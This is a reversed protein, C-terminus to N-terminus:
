LFHNKEFEKGHSYQNAYEVYRKVSLHSLFGTRKIVEETSMNRELCRLIYTNRLHQASIGKRLQARAVLRIMKKVAIATLAKTADNDYM